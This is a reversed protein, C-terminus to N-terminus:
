RVVLPDLAQSQQAGRGAPLAPGGVGQVLQRVQGVGVPPCPASEAARDGAEVVAHSAECGASRAQDVGQRSREAPPPDTSRSRVAGAVRPGDRGHRRPDARVADGARGEHGAAAEVPDSGRGVAGGDGRADGPGLQAGVLAAVGKQGLVGAADGIHDGEQASRRRELTSRRGTVTNRIAGDGPTLTLTFEQSAVTAKKGKGFVARISWRTPAPRTKPRPRARCSPPATARNILRLGAPRKRTM